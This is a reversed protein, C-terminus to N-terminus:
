LLISFLHSFTVKRGVALDKRANGKWLVEVSHKSHLIRFKEILNPLDMGYCTKQLLRAPEGIDVEIGPVLDRPLLLSITIVTGTEAGRALMVFTKEIVPNIMDLFGEKEGGLPAQLYPHRPYLVREYTPNKLVRQGDAQQQVQCPKAAFIQLHKLYTRNRGIGDLWAVVTDWDHFCDFLFRNKSYLYQEAEAAITKNGAILLDKCVHQLSQSTSTHDQVRYRLRTAPRDVDMRM